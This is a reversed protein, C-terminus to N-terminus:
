PGAASRGADHPYDPLPLEDPPLGIADVVRGLPDDRADNPVRLVLVAVDDRLPRGAFLSASAVPGEAMEEASHGAWGRLDELLREEGFLEGGQNRAGTIGDTYLVLADGPGLGVRDARTAAGDFM